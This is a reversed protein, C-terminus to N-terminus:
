GLRITDLPLQHIEALAEKSVAEIKSLAFQRAAEAELWLDELGEEIAAAQSECARIVKLDRTHDVHGKTDQKFVISHYEYALAIIIGVRRWHDQKKELALFCFSDEWTSRGGNRITAIFLAKGTEPFSALTQSGIRGFDPYFCIRRFKGIDQFIALDLSCLHLWPMLKYDSYKSARKPDLLRYSLLPAQLQLYKSQEAVMSSDESHPMFLDSCRIPQGLSSEVFIDCHRVFHYKDSDRFIAFPHVRWRCSVWTWSPFKDDQVPPQLEAAKSRAEQRNMSSTVHHWLLGVCFGTEETEDHSASESPCHIPVGWYTRQDITALYGRFADIADMQNTLKRRSYDDVASPFDPRLDKYNRLRLQGDGLGLTEPVMAKACDILVENDCCYIRRTSIVKEQYCWARTNWASQEIRYHYQTDHDMLIVGGSPVTTFSPARRDVSVGPLPVRNNSGLAVITAWAGAFIQGMLQLQQKVHDPQNQRICYYDVWLYRKGLGQTLRIADAITWTVVGGFGDINLPQPDNTGAPHDRGWVYSLALYEPKRPADIVKLNRCDILLLNPITEDPSTHNHQDVCVQIQSLIWEYKVKFNGCTLRPTTSESSPWFTLRYPYADWHGTGDEYKGVLALDVPLAYASARRVLSLGTTRKGGYVYDRALCFLACMPCGSTPDQGLTSLDFVTRYGRLGFESRDYPEPGAVDIAAIEGFDISNCVSCFGNGMDDPPGTRIYRRM